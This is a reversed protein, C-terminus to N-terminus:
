KAPRLNIKHATTNIEIGFAPLLGLFAAGDNRDRVPQRPKEFLFMRSSGAGKDNVSIAHPKAIDFLCELGSAPADPKLVRRRMGQPVGSSGPHRLLTHVEPLNASIEPLVVFARRLKVGMVM